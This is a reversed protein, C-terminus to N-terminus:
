KIGRDWHLKTLIGGVVFVLAAYYLWLAAVVLFTYAGYLIGLTPFKTLYYTFGLKACELLITATAAGVLASRAPVPSHALYKYLLIFLVFSAGISVVGTALQELLAELTAPVYSLGIQRVLAAVPAAINGIIMLLGLLLLLMVDYLKYVAFFRPARLEYVGNLATRLSSFLATSTWVAGVVGLLGAVRGTNLITDIQARLTDMITMRYSANPIVESLQREIVSLVVPWEIVQGLGYLMLFILPVICLLVNFAIGASLLYIPHVDVYHYIGKTYYVVGALFQIGPRIVRPTRPKRM